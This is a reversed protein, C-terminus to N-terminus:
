KVQIHGWDMLSQDTTSGDEDWDGGYVVPTGLEAGAALFLGGILIFAAEDNWPISGDIWPAFDLAKSPRSNHMSKPWLVSSNGQMFAELQAGETRHGCIIALDYVQFGIVYHAVDQLDKRVTSLYKLSRKGYKFM